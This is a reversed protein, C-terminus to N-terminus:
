TREPVLEAKWYHYYCHRFHFHYHYYSCVLVALSMKSLKSTRKTKAIQTM